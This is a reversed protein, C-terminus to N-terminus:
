DETLHAGPDSVIFGQARLRQLVGEEALLQRMPVVAVIKGPTQLAESIQATQTEILRRSYGPLMRNMCVPLSGRPGELARTVRGRAWYGAQEQFVEPDTEIEFLMASLCAAVETDSDNFVEPSLQVTLGEPKVTRVRHRRASARIDDEPDFDLRAKRIFDGRLDLVKTLTPPEIYGQPEFDAKQAALAIHAQTWAPLAKTWRGDLRSRGDPPLYLTRAGKMRRELLSKDWKLDRPTLAPPLALVWAVADGKSVKWWAPGNGPMVIVVDAVIKSEPDDYTRAQALVASAPAFAAAALCFAAVASRCLNRARM